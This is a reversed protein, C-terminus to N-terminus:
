GSLDYAREFCMNRCAWCREEFRKHKQLSKSSRWCSVVFNDGKKECFRKCIKPYGSVMNRSGKTMARAHPYRLRGLRRSGNRSYGLVDISMAGIIVVVFVISIIKM